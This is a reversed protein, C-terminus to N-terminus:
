LLSNVIIIFVMNKKQAKGNFQHTHPTTTKHIIGHSKCFEDVANSTYKKGRDSISTKLVHTIQIKAEIKYIINKELTENESTLM